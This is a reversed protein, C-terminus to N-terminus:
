SMRLRKWTFTSSPPVQPRHHVQQVLVEAAVAAVLGVLQECRREPSGSLGRM